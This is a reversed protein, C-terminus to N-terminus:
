IYNGLLNITEWNRLGLIPMFIFFANFIVPIYIHGFIGYNNIYLNIELWLYIYFIKNIYKIDITEQLLICLNQVVNFLFRSCIELYWADYPAVNKFITSDYKSLAPRWVFM